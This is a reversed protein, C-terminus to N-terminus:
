SLIKTSRGQPTESIPPLALSASLSNATDVETGYKTVEAHYHSQWQDSDKHQQYAATIAAVLLVGVICSAGILWWNRKRRM